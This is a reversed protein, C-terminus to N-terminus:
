DQEILVDRAENVKSALYDSGGHDPHAKAIMRKHAALVVAEDADDPLGLVSLAEARGMGSSSSSSSARRQSPGVDEDLNQFGEGMLKDKLWGTGFVSGGILLALLGLPLLKLTFLFGAGATLAILQALRRDASSRGGGPLAFFAAGLVVILFLWHM